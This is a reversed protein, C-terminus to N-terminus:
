LFAEVESEGEDGGGVEEVREGAGAGGGVWVGERAEEGGVGVVSGCPLLTICQVGFGHLRRRPIAIQKQIRRHRIM